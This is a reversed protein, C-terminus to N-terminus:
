KFRQDLKHLPYSKGDVMCYEPALAEFRSEANGFEVLIIRHLANELLGAQRLAEITLECGQGLLEEKAALVSAFDPHTWGDWPCHQTEFYHGSNCRFYLNRM